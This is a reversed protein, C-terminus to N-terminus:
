VGWQPAPEDPRTPRRRRRRPHTLAEQLAETARSRFGEMTSVAQRRRNAQARESAQLLSSVLILLLPAFTSIPCLGPSPPCSLLQLRQAASARVELVGGACM